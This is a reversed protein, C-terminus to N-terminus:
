YYIKVSFLKINVLFLIADYIGMFPVSGCLKKVIEKGGDQHFMSNTYVGPLTIHTLRRVEEGQEEDQNEAFISFRRSAHSNEFSMKSFWTNNSFRTNSTLISVKRIQDANFEKLSKDASSESLDNNKSSDYNAALSIEFVPADWATEPIPPYVGQCASSAHYFLNRLAVNAIPYMHLLRLIRIKPIILFLCPTTTTVSCSWLSLGPELDGFVEDSKNCILCKENDMMFTKGRGQLYIQVFFFAFTM